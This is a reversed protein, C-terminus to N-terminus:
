IYSYTGEPHFGSINYFEVNRLVDFRGEASKELIELVDFITMACAIYLTHLYIIYIFMYKHVDITYSCAHEYVHEYVDYIQM